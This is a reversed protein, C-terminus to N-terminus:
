AQMGYLEAVPLEANSFLPSSVQFQIEPLYQFCVHHFVQGGAVQKPELLSALMACKTPPGFLISAELM